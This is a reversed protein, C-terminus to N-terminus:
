RKRLKEGAGWNWGADLFVITLRISTLFRLFELTHPVKLQYFSILLSPDALSSKVSRGIKVLSTLSIWMPKSSANGGSKRTPNAAALIIMCRYSQRSRVTTSTVPNLVEVRSRRNAYCCKAVQDWRRDQNDMAQEPMAAEELQCFMIILLSRMAEM